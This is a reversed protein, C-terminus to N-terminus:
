ATNRAQKKVRTCAQIHAIVSAQAGKMSCCGPRSVNRHELEQQIPTAARVLRSLIPSRWEVKCRLMSMTLGNAEQDVGSCLHGRLCIVHCRRQVTRSEVAAGLNDGLEQLVFGWHVCQLVVAPGWQVPGSEIAM